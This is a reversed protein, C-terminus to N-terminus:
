ESQLWHTTHALLCLVIIKHEQAYELLGSTFHSVHGDIILLRHCGHAINHTQVDFVTEIWERGIIKSTYGKESMQLSFGM